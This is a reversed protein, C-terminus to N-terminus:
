EQKQLSDKKLTVNIVQLQSNFKFTYHCLITVVDFKYIVASPLFIDCKTVSFVSVLVYIINSNFILKLKRLHVGVSNWMQKIFLYVAKLLKYPPQPEPPLTPRGVVLLTATQDRDDRKFLSLSLTACLYDRIEVYIFQIFTHMYFLVTRYLPTM